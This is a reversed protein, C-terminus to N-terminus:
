MYAFFTHANQGVFAFVRVSLSRFERREIKPDSLVFPSAFSFILCLFKEFFAAACLDAHSLYNENETSLFQVDDQQWRGISAIRISFSWVPTTFVFSMRAAWRWVINRHSFQAVVDPQRNQSINEANGNENIKIKLWRSTALSLQMSWQSSMELM